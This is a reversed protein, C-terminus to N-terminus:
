SAPEMASGKCATALGRIYSTSVALVGPQTANLRGTCRRIRQLRLFRRRERDRGLWRRARNVRLPPKSGPRRGTGLGARPVKHTSKWPRNSVLCLRNDPGQVPGIHSHGAPTWAGPRAKLSLYPPIGEALM